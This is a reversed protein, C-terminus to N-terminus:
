YIRKGFVKGNLLSTGLGDRMSLCSNRDIPPTSDSYSKRQRYLGSKRRRNRSHKIAILSWGGYILFRSARTWKYIAIRIIETKFGTPSSFPTRGINLSRIATTAHRIGKKKPLSRRMYLRFKLSRKGPFMRFQAALRSRTGSPGSKLHDSSVRM